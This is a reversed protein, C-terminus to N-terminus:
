AFWWLLILLTPMQKFIDGDSIYLDTNSNISFHAEIDIIQFTVSFLFLSTCALFLDCHTNKSWYNSFSASSLSFHWLQLLFGHKGLTYSLFYYLIINNKYKQKYYYM